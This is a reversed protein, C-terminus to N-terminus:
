RAFQGRIWQPNTAQPFWTFKTPPPHRHWQYVGLIDADYQLEIEVVAENVKPEVPSHIMVSTPGIPNCSINLTQGALMESLTGQIQQNNQSIIQDTKLSLYRCDWYVNRIPFIHSNNSISFPFLFPHQPDSAPSLITASTEYIRDYVLYAVSLLTAIRFVASLLARLVSVYLPPRPRGTQSPSQPTAQISSVEQPSRPAPKRETSVEKPKPQRDTPRGRSPPM